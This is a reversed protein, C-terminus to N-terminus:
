AGLEPVGLARRIVHSEDVVDHLRRACTSRWAALAAASHPTSRQAATRLADLRAILAHIKARIDSPWSSRVLEIMTSRASVSIARSVSGLWRYGKAITGENQARALAVYTANLHRIVRLYQLGSPSMSARRLSFSDDGLPTPALTEANASMWRSFLEAYSPTTDNVGLGRVSVAALRPYPYTKHTIPSQPNEQMWEAVHFHTDTEDSTTVHSKAGSSTDVLTLIWRGRTLKMSASVTDGATVSFLPQAAYQRRTDSWFGFYRTLLPRKGDAIIVESTGLQIFNSGEPGSDAGIWTDAFGSHSGREARPVAWSGRVSRVSGFWTYGAYSGLMWTPRGRDSATSSLVAVVCMLTLLALGILVLDLRKRRKHM